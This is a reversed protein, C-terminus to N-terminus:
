VSESLERSPVIWTYMGRRPDSATHRHRDHDALTEPIEEEVQLGQGVQDKPAGQGEAEEGARGQCGPYTHLVSDNLVVCCILRSHPAYCRVVTAQVRGRFCM